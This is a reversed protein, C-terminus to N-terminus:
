AKLHLDLLLNQDDYLRKESALGSVVLTDMEEKIVDIDLAITAFYVRMDSELSTSEKYIRERDVASINADYRSTTRLAQRSM